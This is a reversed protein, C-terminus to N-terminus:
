PEEPMEIWLGDPKVFIENPKTAYGIFRIVSGSNTPVTQTWEGAPNGVYIGAGPSLTDNTVTLNGQLLIGATTSNTGIAVGLLRNCMNENTNCAPLWENTSWYYVKQTVTLTDGAYNAIIRSDASGGSEAAFYAHSSSPDFKLVDNAAPTNTITYAVGGAVIKNTPVAGILGPTINHPNTAALHNTIAANNSSIAVANSAIAASNSTIALANSAIAATNSSIAATNSAIAISNSAIAGTNSAIAATNSAIAATNGAVAATLGTTALGNAAIIKAAAPTKFLGNTEVMLVIDNTQVPFNTPLTGVPPNTPIVNTPPGWTVPVYTASVANTLPDGSINTVVADPISYGPVAPFTVTYLGTPIAAVTFSNTFIAGYSVANTFEAPGTLTWCVNTSTIIGTVAVAVVNSYPLYWNTISIQRTATVEINTAAPLTYGKLRLPFAVSYTGTPIPTLTTSNLGSARFASANSFEAPYAFLSWPAAVGATQGTVVLTLSNSFPFYNFTRAGDGAINTAYPPTQYFDPLHNFYFVYDGGQVAGPSGTFIKGNGYWNTDHPLLRFLGNVKVETNAIVYDAATMYDNSFASLNVTVTYAAADARSATLCLSIILIPLVIIFKKM